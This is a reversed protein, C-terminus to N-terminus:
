QFVEKPFVLINRLLEVTKGGITSIVNPTVDPDDMSGKVSYSLYLFGQGPEKLINKLVPIQEITRDLVILPSVQIIGNIEKKSLDLQGNGTLVMSPSDLLFDTTQFIGKNGTFTAGLKSFALGNHGFDIKGRLLDYVNLAGFIKSLLNWKRIVGDRNYIVATGDMNGILDAATAGESALSGSIFTTGTIDKGKGGLAAFILDSKMNGLRGKASLLPTKGSLDIACQLDARGEFIGMTIRPIVIKGGAMVAETKLDGAGVDGLIFEKAKVSIEGNAKALINKEPIIPIRFGNTKETVFDGINLRDMDVSLSFVPTELGTVTLMGKNIISQGCVLNNLQVDVSNGKFAASLEIRSLTRKLGPIRVHGNQISMTGVMYPLKVLPLEMDRVTLKLTANGGTTEEPLFFIKAARGVDRADLSIDANIKKRESVTGRAKVHIIDELECSLDDVTVDSGKVFLKAQARSKIGKEKKMFGPIEFVLDDMNVDSSISVVGDDRRHIKGDLGAIGTMDFPLGIFPSVHRPELAGKFSLDFSGNSWTGKVTIDTNDKGIVVPDFVVDDRTFRYSGQAAFSTNKWVAQANYLKGSGDVKLLEGKMAEVEVAGDTAGDKFVIGKLDIFPPLDELNAAYKGKVRVPKKEEYPIVGHVEYFKSTNYTGSLNSIEVKEMDAFLQGKMGNFFMGEYVAAVDEVELDATVAGKATHQFTKVKVQGGRLADWIDQPIYQSTAYSAVDTVSLFGSSLELSTYRYDDFHVAIAFPTEKYLANEIRIDILDGSASLTVYANVKDLSVSKKLWSDSIEFREAEAEGTLVFQDEKLLFSGKGKVFGKLIKDIKALNLGTLSVDGKIDTKRKNYTGKGSIDVTGIYEGNRLHAEFSLASSMNVNRADVSNVVFKLGSATVLGNKINVLEVPYKFPHGKAGKPKVIIDFDSIRIERFYIGKTLNLVFQSKKITGEIDGKFTIDSLEAAFNLGKRILKVDGVTVPSETAASIVYASFRALNLRAISVALIVVCLILAVISIKKM